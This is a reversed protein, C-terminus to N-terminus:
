STQNVQTPHLPKPSPQAMYAFLNNIKTGKSIIEGDILLSTDSRSFVVDANATTM